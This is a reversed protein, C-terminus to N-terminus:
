ENLEEAASEATKRSRYIDLYAGFVWGNLGEYNVQYWYNEEREIVEPENTKSLIELIYGKWLTTIAKSEVDPKDRLRLHTSTVVGWNSQISLVNTAPFTIKKEQSKKECSGVFFILPLLTVSWVIRQLIRKM